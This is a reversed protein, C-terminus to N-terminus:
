SSPNYYRPRKRKRGQQRLGIVQGSLALLSQYLSNIGAELALMIAYQWLERPVLKPNEVWEALKRNRDLYFDLRSQNAESLWNDESEHEICEVRQVIYNRRLAGLVLEEAGMGSETVIDLKLEAVKLSRIKDVLTEFRGYPPAHPDFVIGNIAVQELRTSKTAAILVERFMINNSYEIDLCQLPSTRRGLVEIVADCFEQKDFFQARLTSLNPKKRVLDALSQIQEQIGDGQFDCSDFVVEKVSTSRILGQSLRSFGNTSSFGVTMELSQVTARPSEFYQGMAELYLLERPEALPPQPQVTEIVVKALGSAHNDDVVCALSRFIDSIFGENCYEIELSQLQASQRLVTTISRAPSAAAASIRQEETCSFLTLHTPASVASGGLLYSVIGEANNRSFAIRNLELSQLNKNRRQLAQFFQDRFLPLLHGTPTHWIEVTELKERTALENLLPDWYSLPPAGSFMEVEDDFFSFDIHKIENNAHLAQVLAALKTTNNFFRLRIPPSPTNTTNEANDAQLEAIIDDAETRSM